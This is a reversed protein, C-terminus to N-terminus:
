LGGVATQQREWLRRYLGGERAILEPHTGQEVLRGRDLVLIRDVGAITHLRHAIVLVTRGTALEGLARQVAAESNPDAHATAEDLIVVPADQLIARAITIRQAEGGSLTGAKEGLVTEYGEPLALIREHIGVRRAADEIESRSAAPRGRAINVAVTDRLLITEQFVFAVSSLVQRTSMDRVDVGGISVSGETADWFRPILRALTTKGSGSPGVIATVSGEPLLASIGELARTGDEYRFGVEHLEVTADRPFQSTSPEPLGATALVVGLERAGSRADDIHNGLQIMGMIGVPLGTGVAIFAAVTGVDTWGLLVFATGIASIWLVMAAASLLNTMLVFPGGIGQMWRLTLDSVRDVADTFRHYVGGAAGYTKVVEVGDSLEVAASLLDVQAKEYPQQNRATAAAFRPVVVALVAAIYALLLLTLRWDILLLYVTAITPAVVTAVMDIAAPAVLTHMRMIDDSVAKKVGASGHVSFWGLPLTMLHRITRVRTLYRFEADARHATRSALSGLVTAALVGAIAACVWQWVASREAGDSLLHRAIQAIAIAPVVGLASGLAMWIMSRTLPWGIPTLLEALLGKSSWFGPEHVAPKQM